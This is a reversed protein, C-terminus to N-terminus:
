VKPKQPMAAKVAKMVDPLRLIATQARGFADPIASHTREFFDAVGTVPDKEELDRVAEAVYAGIINGFQDVTCVYYFVIADEEENLGLAQLDALNYWGNVGNGPAFIGGAVPIAYVEVMKAILNAGMLLKSAFPEFEALVRAYTINLQPRNSDSFAAIKTNM